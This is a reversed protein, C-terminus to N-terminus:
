PCSTLGILAGLAAGYGGADKNALLTVFVFGIGAGALTRRKRDCPTRRRPNRMAVTARAHGNPSGAQIAADSITLSQARTGEVSATLITLILVFVGLPKVTERLM